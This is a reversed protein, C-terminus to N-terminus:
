VVYIDKKVDVMFNKMVDKKKKMLKKIKKNKVVHIHYYGNKLSNNGVDKLM